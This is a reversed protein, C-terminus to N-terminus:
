SVESVLSVAQHFHSVGLSFLCFHRCKISYQSFVPFKFFINAFFFYYNFHKFLEFIVHNLEVAVCKLKFKKTSFDCFKELLQTFVTLKLIDPSNNIILSNLKM